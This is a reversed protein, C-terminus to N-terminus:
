IIFSGKKGRNNKKFYKEILDKLGFKKAFKLIKDKDFDEFETRLNNSNLLEFCLSIDAEDKISREPNNAIAMLKLIIYDAPQVVPVKGFVMDDIVASNKIIDKGDETKVFMFDVKGGFGEALDFQAFVETKQYCQYSLKEMISFIALRDDIEALIDIDSTYRPLGFCGLAVAGILCFNIDGRKLKKSIRSLSKILNKDSM